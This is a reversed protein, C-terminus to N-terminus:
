SAPPASANKGNGGGSGTDAPSEEAEKGLGLRLQGKADLHVDYTRPERPARVRTKLQAELRRGGSKRKSIRAVQFTATFSGSAQGAEVAAALEPLAAEMEARFDSVIRKILDSQTPM